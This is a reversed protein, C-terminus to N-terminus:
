GAKKCYTLAVIPLTGPDSVIDYTKNNLDDLEKQLADIDLQIQRSFESEKDNNLKKEQEEILRLLELSKSMRDTQKVVLSVFSNEYDSIDVSLQARAGVNSEFYGKGVIAGYEAPGYLIWGAPCTPSDFAAVTSTPMLSNRIPAINEAVLEELSSKTLGSLKLDLSNKIEDKVREDVLKDVAKHAQGIAKETIEPFARAAEENALPEVISTVKKTLLYQILENNVRDSLFWFGAGLVATVILGGAIFARTYLKQVYDRHKNLDETLLRVLEMNTEDPM